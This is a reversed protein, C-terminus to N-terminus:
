AVKKAMKDPDTNWIEYLMSDEPITNKMAIKVGDAFVLGSGPESAESMCEKQADSLSFKEAILEANDEHQALFVFLGTNDFLNKARPHELVRSPLQTVCIIRLYYKRLESFFSDLLRVAAENDFLVQAEELLLNTPRGIRFNKYTQQKVYQMASLMAFTEMTTGLSSCDFNTWTDSMSCATEGNFANMSGKVFMEFSMGIKHAIEEPQEHLIRYLDDLVPRTERGIHPEYVLGLCRDLLSKELQDLERGMVNSALALFFDTNTQLLKKTLAGAENALDLPNLCTPSGPGLPVNKGGTRECLEVYEGHFDFSFLQPALPDLNIAAGTKDRTCVNQLQMFTIISNMTMGKGAGTMGFLWMHPSKLKGPNVLITDGSITDQGLMYSKAPDDHINQSSFPIMIASEDTTLSRFNKPLRPRALPLASVFAEEQKVPLEVLDISWTQAESMLADQYIGMQAKTDAYVTILGQFYSVVQDEDRVYDLLEISEAEKNELAPPIRTGDGGAKRESNQYAFIEAQTVDINRHIEQVSKSKVQPKFLLSINMPIPLARITRIARDSLDSGFDRIHFTKVTGRPMVLSQKLWVDDPPYAAWSPAVFDRAHDKSTNALRKYSFLFPEKAGRILSHHLKMRDLGSLSTCRVKLRKFIKVVGERTSALKAEAESLDAASQSFTLYNPRDFETRGERQRAAFIDNFAVALDANEGEEPLYREIDKRQTPLNILNIQYCSNPPFYAHIQAFKDYIMDMVDKREYEYSIEGFKMTRCFIGEDTESVGSEHMYNFGTLDNAVLM